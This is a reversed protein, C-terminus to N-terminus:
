IQGIADPELSEDVKTPSMHPVWTAELSSRRYTLSRWLRTVLHRLILTQGIMPLALDILHLGRFHLDRVPPTQTLATHTLSAGPWPASGVIRRDPLLKLSRPEHLSL